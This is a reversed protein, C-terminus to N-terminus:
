ESKGGCCLTTTPFPILSYKIKDGWDPQFCMIVVCEVLDLKGPNIRRGLQRAPLSLSLSLSLSFHPAPVMPKGGKTPLTLLYM